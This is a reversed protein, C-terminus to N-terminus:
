VVNEYYRKENIIKVRGRSQPTSDPNYFEKKILKMATYLIKM